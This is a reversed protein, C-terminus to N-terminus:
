TGCSRDGLRSGLVVSAMTAVEGSLRTQFNQMTAINNGLLDLQVHLADLERCGCCPSACSNTLLLGNAQPAINVCNEGSMRFNGSSDPPIGNITTIPIKAVVGDCACNQNLGEGAIAHIIIRVPVNPQKDVALRINTGAVIEIDGYIKNSREVGNVLTISSIGRIQPRIADPDLRGGGLNFFYQGPPLADVDDVQGITISGICEDFSDVGFLTYSDNESHTARAISATAVTVTSTGDTYGISVTYGTSALIVSYIFFGQPDLGLSARVSLQLGVIFSSPLQISGSIDAGSAQESLPYARQANLNLWEINWALTV